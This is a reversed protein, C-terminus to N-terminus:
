GSLKAASSTPQMKTKPDFQMQDKTSASTPRKPQASTAKSSARQNSPKDDEFDDDDYDM